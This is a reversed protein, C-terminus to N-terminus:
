SDLSKYESIKFGIKHIILCSLISYFDLLFNL